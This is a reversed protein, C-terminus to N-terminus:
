KVRLREFWNKGHKVAMKRFYKKTMLQGSHTMQGIKSKGSKVDPRQEIHKELLETGIGRKQYPGEVWVGVAGFENSALGIPDDEVFAVVTTDFEPYGKEKIENPTLHVLNGSQDRVYNNDDDTRKCYVNREGTQRFEVDFEGMKKKDLLVPYKSKKGLWSLGGKKGYNTYADSGIFGTYHHKLFDDEEDESLFSLTGNLIEKLKIM